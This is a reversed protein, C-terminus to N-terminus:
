KVVFNLLENSTCQVCIVCNDITRLTDTFPIKGYFYVVESEELAGTNRERGEGGGGSGWRDDM